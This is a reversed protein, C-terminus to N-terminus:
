SFKELLMEWWGPSTPHPRLDHPNSEYDVLVNVFNCVKHGLYNSGCSLVPFLMLEGSGSNVIMEVEIRFDEPDMCFGPGQSKVWMNLRWKDGESILAFNM